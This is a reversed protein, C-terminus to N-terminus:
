ALRSAILTRAAQSAQTNQYFAAPGQAVLANDATTGLGNFNQVGLVAFHSPASVLPAARRLWSAVKVTESSDLMKTEAPAASGNDALTGAMCVSLLLGLGIAKM